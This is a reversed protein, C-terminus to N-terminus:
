VRLAISYGVEKRHESERLSATRSGRLVPKSPVAESPAPEGAISVGRCPQSMPGLYDFVREFRVNSVGYSWTVKFM